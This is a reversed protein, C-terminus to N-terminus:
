AVGLSISRRDRIVSDNLCRVYCFASSYFLRMFITMTCNAAAQFLADNVIVHVIVSEFSLELSKINARVGDVAPQSEVPRFRHRHIRTVSQFPRPRPTKSWLFFRALSRRFSFGVENAAFTLLGGDLARYFFEIM